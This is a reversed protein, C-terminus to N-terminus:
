APSCLYLTLTKKTPTGKCRAEPYVDLELTQEIEKCIEEGKSCGHFDKPAKFSGAVNGEEDVMDVCKGEKYQVCKSKSIGIIHGHYPALRDLDDLDLEHFAVVAGRFPIRWVGDVGGTAGLSRAAAEREKRDVYIRRSQPELVFVVRREGRGAM